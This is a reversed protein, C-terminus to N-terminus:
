ATVFFHLVGAAIGPNKNTFANIKRAIGCYSGTMGPRHTAGLGSDM